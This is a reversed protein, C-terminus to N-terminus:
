QGYRDVYSTDVYRSPPPTPQTLDGMEV